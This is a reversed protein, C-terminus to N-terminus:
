CRCLITLYECMLISSSPNKAYQSTINMNMDHSKCVNIKKENKHKFNHIIHKIYIVKCLMIRSTNWIHRRHM